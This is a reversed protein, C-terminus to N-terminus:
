CTLCIRPWFFSHAWSVVEEATMAEFDLDPLKPPAKTRVAM